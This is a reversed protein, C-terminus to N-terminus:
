KKTLSNNLNFFFFFYNKSNRQKISIRIGIDFLKSKFVWLLPSRGLRYLSIHIKIFFNFFVQLSENEEFLTNIILIDTNFGEFFM